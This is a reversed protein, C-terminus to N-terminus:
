IQEFCKAFAVVLMLAPYPSGRGANGSSVKQCRATALVIIWFFKIMELKTVLAETELGFPVHVRSLIVSPSCALRFIVLACHGSAGLSLGIVMAHARAGRHTARGSGYVVPYPPSDEIYDAGFRVGVDFGRIVRCHSRDWVDLAVVSDFLQLWITDQEIGGTSGDLEELEHM